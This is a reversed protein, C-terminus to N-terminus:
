ESPMARQLILDIACIEASQPVNKPVNSKRWRVLKGKTSMLDATFTSDCLFAYGPAIKEDQLLDHQLSSANLIREAVRSSKLLMFLM